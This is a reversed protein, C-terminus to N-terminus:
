HVNRCSVESGAHGAVISIPTGTERELERLLHARRGHDDHTGHSFNLRFANAGADLLSRMVDKTDSAPGLTCLIKCSM